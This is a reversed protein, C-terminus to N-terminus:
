RLHRLSPFFFLRMHLHSDFFLNLKGERLLWQSCFHSNVPAYSLEKM